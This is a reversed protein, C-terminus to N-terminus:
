PPDARIPGKFLPAATPLIPFAPRPQYQGDLPDARPLGGAQHEAVALIRGTSAQVAVVAGSFGLGSLARRAAQQVALDITTKVATGSQGKWRRLVKVQHGSESQVVVETTPSGTLEAQYAQQLGSLGVTTGQRYPEGDKVLQNTAETGVQDPM